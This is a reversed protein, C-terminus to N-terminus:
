QEDREDEIEGGKMCEECLGNLCEKKGCIICVEYNDKYEKEETLKKFLDNSQKSKHYKQIFGVQSMLNLILTGILIILIWWWQNKIRIVLNVIIGAIIGTLNIYNGTVQGKAIQLATIGSLGDKWRKIFEQFKLKNGKKDKIFYGRKKTIFAIVIIVLLLAFWKWYKILEIM